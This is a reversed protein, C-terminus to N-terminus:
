GHNVMGCNPCIAKGSKQRSLKHGCRQCFDAPYINLYEEVGNIIGMFIRKVPAAFGEGKETSSPDGAFKVPESDYISKFDEDAM